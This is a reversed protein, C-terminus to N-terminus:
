KYISYNPSSMELGEKTETRIDLIVRCTLISYMVREFSSISIFLLNRQSFTTMPMHIYSSLMLPQCSMYRQEMGNLFVANALRRHSSTTMRLAPLGKIAILILLVARCLRYTDLDYAMVFLWCAFLMPSASVNFCGASQYGAGRPPPIFSVSKLFVGMFTFVGGFCLAWLIPLIITLRHDKGWIAWTRMTLLIETVSIGIAFMWGNVAFTKRCAEESSGNLLIYYLVSIIDLFPM